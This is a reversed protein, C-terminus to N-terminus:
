NKSNLEKVSQMSSLQNSPFPPVRQRALAVIMKAKGLQKNKKLGELLAHITDVNPYWNKKMSDKCMTCALNFEGGKFLYHIMTQYIKENPQCGKTHMSTYFVRKAMELYGAQCFGKIVLNCTVEDPMIGLRRMLAM